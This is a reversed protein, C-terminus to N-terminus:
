FFFFPTMHGTQYSTNIFYSINCIWKRGTYITITESMDCSDSSGWQPCARRTLLADMGFVPLLHPEQGIFRLQLAWLLSVTFHNNEM